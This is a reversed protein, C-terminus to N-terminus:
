AAIWCKGNQQMSTNSRIKAGAARDEELLRVIIRDIVGVFLFIRSGDNKNKDSSGSGSNSRHVEVLTTCVDEKRTRVVVVM